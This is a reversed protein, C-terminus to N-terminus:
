KKRIPLIAHLRPERLYIGLWIVLGLVVHIVVSEGVRLHALMAGGLYGTFLVAGLVSTAPIVYAVACIIELIAVPLLISQPLGIAAMQEIMKPYFVQPFLKVMANYLFFVGVLGTIVRGAILIKRNM